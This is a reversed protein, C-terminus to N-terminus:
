NKFYSCSQSVKTRYPFVKLSLHLYTQLEIYGDIYKKVVFTPLEDWGASSNKLSSIVQAIETCTIDTIVICHEIINFYTIQCQILM